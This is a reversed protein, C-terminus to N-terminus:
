ELNQLQERMRDINLKLAISAQTMEIAAAKSGLTNAERNMEQTVFDLRRGVVGGKELTTRVERVHTRLRNIEEAVDMRLAYLTVEQRIRDAVEEHSLTSKETLAEALASELREQLKARLHERIDPVRKEVDAVTELIAECHTEFVARLAEGERVRAALFDSFAREFLALVASRVDDQSATSLVAVGPLALIEAVSLPKADPAVKLIAAQLQLARELAETRVGTPATDEDSALSLRIEVKGRTLRKQVTERLLPELFRLEECVRLSLDLFRGNVSRCEVTVVGVPTKGTAVGYGTMSAITSM